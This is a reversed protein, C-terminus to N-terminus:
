TAPAAASMAASRRARDEAHEDTGGHEVYAHAALLLGSTCFGCQAAYHHTFAQQVPQSGAPAHRARRRHHDRSRRGGRRPPPVRPSAGRRRAGHVRRVRGARMGGEPEHDVLEERLVDLLSTLPGSELEHVAGNVTLNVLGGEVQTLARRVLVPLTKSRYWASALADDHPSVDTLAADGAAAPDDAKADASPLRRGHTGAGTVAVRVTGDASRAASVAMATYDHTHPRDLAAFGGAAPEEFSVDLLLRGARNALFDEVPESREGGAGTSRVEADLALLASQLDGRPADQGEGACVNGGLTAQGSIEPDAINAACPGLPTPLGVLDSIPTAAGVTVTTGDRTM